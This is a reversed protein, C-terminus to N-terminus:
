KKWWRCNEWYNAREKLDSVFRGEIRTDVGFEAGISNLDMMADAAKDMAKIANKVIKERQKLTLM